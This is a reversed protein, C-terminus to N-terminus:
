DKNEERVLDSQKFEEIQHQISQSGRAALNLLKPERDSNKAEEVEPSFPKSDNAVVSSGEISM